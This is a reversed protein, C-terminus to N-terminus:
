LKWKHVGMQKFRSEMMNFAFNIGEPNSVILWGASWHTHSYYRWFEYAEDETLDVGKVNKFWQQIIRADAEHDVVPFKM